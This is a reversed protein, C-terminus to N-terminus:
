ELPQVIVTEPYAGMVLTGDQEESYFQNKTQMAPKMIISFYKNKMATWDVSGSNIIWGKKPRKFGVIKGNVKSSIEVFRKDQPNYEKIGAGGIVKYEFQKAASSINKINIHLEIGRKSKHLIYRKTIEFDKHKLTYLIEDGIKEVTYDAVDTLGEGSVSSIAGIYDRPNNLSILDLPQQTAADKYDKLQVRKISGSINSFTLIYRDTEARLEKEEVKPTAAEAIKEEPAKVAAAPVQKEVLKQATAPQNPKVFFYQFGLIIFVSLAIAIILRKEM